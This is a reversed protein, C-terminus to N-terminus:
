SRTVPRPLGIAFLTTASRAPVVIAGGVGVAAPKLTLAGELATAPVENETTTVATSEFPAAKGDNVPVADNELLSTRAPRGDLQMGAASLPVCVKVNTRLVAPVSKPRSWRRMEPESLTATVGAAALLSANECCGAEDVAPVVSEVIM